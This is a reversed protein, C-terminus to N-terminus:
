GQRAELAHRLGDGVFNIALVAIVIMLGPPVWMWWQDALVTISQAQTLMNGWSAAPPRVGLGLFSLGSELIIAQAVGFTANVVIPSLTNPLIHRFLIRPAQYGLSVGARVYDSEKITLVQGRVLRAVPPWAMFGIVATINLLSPGIVSVLVLILMFYPFSMFMDTVRMVIQDVWRGYYGALLGLTVGIIVYVLVAGVGVTLSVRSAYILRSLVDRGTSDTGLIHGAGPAADYEPFIKYPSMPAILPAFIAMLILLVFVVLGVVAMRHKLYRRVVRRFAPEARGAPRTTDVTDPAANIGADGPAATATM